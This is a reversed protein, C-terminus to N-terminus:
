ECQRRIDRWKEMWDLLDSENLRRKGSKTILLQKLQTSSSGSGMHKTWAELLSQPDLLVQGLGLAKQLQLQEEKGIVKVVFDTSGAKQLVGALAQIYAQSNDVVPAKITIPKGFRRNSALILILVIILVQVFAPFLSTKLLYSFINAGKERKIVEKDRYGHIYEDIWVPQENQLVLQALFEYNNPFDQYANAAIYATTSYMIKGKGIKEQWVVAGFRDGLIVQKAKKKRRGTDIKVKGASSDQESSFPAKTVPQRVGLIILNNGKAVWQRYFSNIFSGKLSSNIRLLTITKDIDENNVLDRSPKRWRQLPTGRESMYAYWAGYGDPARGYTSGSNIKNSAPAAVLTIFIIAVVFTVAFLWLRRKFITM